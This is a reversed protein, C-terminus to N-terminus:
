LLERNLNNFIFSEEIELRFICVKYYKSKGWISRRSSPDSQLSIQIRTAQYSGLNRQNTSARDGFSEGGHFRLFSNGQRHSSNGVDCEEEIGVLFSSAAAANDEALRLLTIQKPKIQLPSQLYCM